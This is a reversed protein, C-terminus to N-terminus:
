LDLRRWQVSYSSISTTTNILSFRSDDPGGATPSVSRLNLPSAGSINPFFAFAGLNINVFSQGSVNGALSTTSSKIALRSVRPAGVAGEAIAVPNDRFAYALESTVPADPDVSSDAINTWDAM